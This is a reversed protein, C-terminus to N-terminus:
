SANSKVHNSTVNRDPQTYKWSYNMWLLRLRRCHRSELSATWSCRALCASVAMAEQSLAHSWLWIFPYLINIFHYLPLCKMFRWSTPRPQQALFPSTTQLLCSKSLVQSYSACPKRMAQANSRLRNTKRQWRVEPHPNDWQAILLWDEPIGHRTREAAQFSSSITGAHLTSRHCLNFSTLHVYICMWFWEFDNLSTLSVDLVQMAESMKQSAGLGQNWWTGGHEVMNWWTGGGGSMLLEASVHLKSRAMESTAGNKGRNRNRATESIVQLTRQLKSKWTLHLLSPCLVGLQSRPIM